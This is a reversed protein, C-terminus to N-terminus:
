LEPILYFLEEFKKKLDAEPKLSFNGEDLEKRSMLPSATELARASRFRLLLM